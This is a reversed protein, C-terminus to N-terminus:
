EQQRKYPLIPRARVRRTFHNKGSQLLMKQALAMFSEGCLEPESLSGLPSPILDLSWELPM